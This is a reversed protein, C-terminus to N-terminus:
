ILATLKLALFFHSCSTGHNITQYSQPLHSHYPCHEHSHHPCHEHVSTISQGTSFLVSLISARFFSRTKTLQIGIPQSLSSTTKHGDRGNTNLRLRPGQFHGSGAPDLRLPGRLVLQLRNEGVGIAQQRFHEGAGVRDPRTVALQHHDDDRRFFFM